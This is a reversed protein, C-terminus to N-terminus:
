KKSKAPKPIGTFADAARVFSRTPKKTWGAREADKTLKDIAAKAAALDAHEDTNGRERKASKGKGTTVIVESRWRGLDGSLKFARIHLTQGDGMLRVNISRMERAKKTKTETAQAVQNEMGIEKTIHPKDLRSLGSPHCDGIDALLRLTVGLDSIPLTNHRM